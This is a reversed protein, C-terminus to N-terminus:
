NTESLTYYDQSRVTQLQSTFSTDSGTYTGMDLMYDVSTEALAPVNWIPSWTAFDVSVKIGEKHLSRSLTDLFKAYNKADLSTAGEAPEWDINFGTYGYEKADRICALIFPQPNSFVQRMWLIFEPPYPFSSVM